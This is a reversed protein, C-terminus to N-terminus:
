GEGAGTIIDAFGDHNVDGVAVYVGGTFRFDYAMFDRIMAGTRGDFVRVDPGGGPGPATVIDPIGDGNVDGVAVRVGGPFRPDYAYFDFVLSRTPGAYVKVEPGGGADAGLASLKSGLLGFVTLSDQTGVYVKGNAITPVSFKVAGSLQDRSGAWTS